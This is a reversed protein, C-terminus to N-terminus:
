GILCEYAERVRKFEEEDGGKDPHTELAKRRFAQKIETEDADEDIGLIDYSSSRKFPKPNFDEFPDDFFNSDDYFHEEKEFNKYSFPTGQYHEPLEGCPIHNQNGLSWMNGYLDELKMLLINCINKFYVIL